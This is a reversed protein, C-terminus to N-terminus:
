YQPPVSQYVPQTALDLPALSAVARVVEPEDVGSWEVQVSAGTVEFRALGFTAVPEQEVRLRHRGAVITRGSPEPGTTRTGPPCRDNVATLFLEIRRDLDARGADPKRYSLALVACTGDGADLSAWRLVLGAPLDVPALALEPPATAMSEEDIGPTIDLAARPPAGADVPENWGTFTIDARERVCAAPGYGAPAAPVNCRVRPPADLRRADLEWIMRDLRGGPGSTLRVEVSGTGELMAEAFRPERFLKRLPLRARITDGGAEEVDGLAALVERLDSRDPEADLPPGLGSLLEGFSPRGDSGEVAWERSSTEADPIFEWRADELRQGARASRVYRGQPIRISEEDPSGGGHSVRRASAPFRLSGATRYTPAAGAFPSSLEHSGEFKVSSATQVFKQIATLRDHPTLSGDTRVVSWGGLAAMLVVAAAAWAVRPSPGRRTPREEPEVRAPGPAAPSIAELEEL